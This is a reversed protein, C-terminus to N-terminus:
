PPFLGPWWRFACHLGEPLLPGELDASEILTGDEGLWYTVPVRTVGAPPAGPPPELFGCSEGERTLLEAEPSADSWETGGLALYGRGGPLAVIRKGARAALWAPPEEPTTAGDRFAAVWRAGDFIVPRGDLLLGLLVHGRFQFGADFWDTLPTGGAGFWRAVVDDPYNSAFVLAHQTTPDVIVLVGDRDLTVAWAVEGAANV